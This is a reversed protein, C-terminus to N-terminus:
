GVGQLKREYRVAFWLPVLAVLLNALVAISNM